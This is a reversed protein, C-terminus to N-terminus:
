VLPPRIGYRNRKLPFADRQAIKTVDGYHTGSKHISFWKKWLYLKLRLFTVRMKKNRENRGGQRVELIAVQELLFYYSSDIVLFFHRFSNEDTSLNWPWYCKLFLLKSHNSEWGRKTIVSFSFGNRTMFKTHYVMRQKALWFAAIKSSFNCTWFSM